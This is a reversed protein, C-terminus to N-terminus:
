CASFFPGLFGDGLWRNKNSSLFALKWIQSETEKKPPFNPNFHYKYLISFFSQEMNGLKLRSKKKPHIESPLYLNEGGGLVFHMKSGLGHGLSSFLCAFLGWCHNSRLNLISIGLAAEPTDCSVIRVNKNVRPWSDNGIYKPPDFKWHLDTTIKIPGSGGVQKSSWGRVTPVKSTFAKFGEFLLLFGPSSPFLLFRFSCSYFKYSGYFLWTYFRYTAKSMEM